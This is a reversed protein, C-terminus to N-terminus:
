GLRQHGLEFGSSGHDNRHALPVVLLEDADALNGPAKGLFIQQLAIENRQHPFEAPSFPLFPARVSHPIFLSRGKPGQPGDRRLRSELLTVGHAHSSSRKARFWILNLAESAALVLFRGIRLASHVLHPIFSATKKLGCDAIQLGFYTSDKQGM